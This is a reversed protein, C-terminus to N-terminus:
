SRTSTGCISCHTHTHANCETLRAIAIIQLRKISVLSRNQIPIRPVAVAGSNHPWATSRGTSPRCHEAIRSRVNNYKFLDTYYAGAIQVPPCQANLVRRLAWNFPPVVIYVCFRRFNYYSHWKYILRQLAAPRCKIAAM